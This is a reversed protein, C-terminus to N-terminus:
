GCLIRLSPYGWLSPDRKGETGVSGEKELIANGVTKSISSHSLSTREVCSPAGRYPLPEKSRM